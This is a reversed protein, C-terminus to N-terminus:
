KLLEFSASKLFDLNHGGVYSLSSQLSETLSMYHNLISKGKYQVLKKTGEVRNTKGTNFASASGYYEKFKNGKEDEIIEGPSEDFGAFLNGCMCMHAGLALAKAIEGALSIGGDAILPTKCELAIKYVSSAQMGRTGVGIEMATTCVHGPGVGIKIADAGWETLDHSAEVTAINGCIFFTDPLKSKYYMLAEKMMRSHGHAIDITIYDPILNEEVMLDVLEYDNRKVGLSISVILGKEKFKRIFALQDVDFRHMIYFYGNSALLECIDENIVSEMNAPVAPYRFRHKGLCVSTDINARTDGNFYKPVLNIDKFDFNRM